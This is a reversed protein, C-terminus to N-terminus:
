NQIRILQHFIEGCFFYSHNRSKGFLIKQSDSDKKEIKEIKWNKEIKELIEILFLNPYLIIWTTDDQSNIRITSPFEGKYTPVTRLFIDQFINLTQKVFITQFTRLYLKIAINFSCKTMTQIWKKNYISGNIIELHTHRRKHHCWVINDYYM